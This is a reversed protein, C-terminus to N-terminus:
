AVNNIIKHMEDALDKSDSFIEVYLNGNYWADYFMGDKEAQAKGLYYFLATKAEHQGGLEDARQEGFSQCKEYSGFDYMVITVYNVDIIKKSSEKVGVVLNVQFKNKEGYEGVDVFVDQKMQTGDPFTNFDNEGSLTKEYWVLMVEDGIDADKFAQETASDKLAELSSPSSPLTCGYFTPIKTITVIIAVIIFVAIVARMIMKNPKKVRRDGFMGHYREDAQKQAEEAKLREEESIEDSLERAIEDPNDKTEETEEVERVCGAFDATEGGDVEVNLEFNETQREDPQPQNKLDKEEM